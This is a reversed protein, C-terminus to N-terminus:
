CYGHVIYQYSIDKLKFNQWSTLGNLGGSHGGGGGLFFGGFGGFSFSGM